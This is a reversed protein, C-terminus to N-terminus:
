GCRPLDALLQDIAPEVQEPKIESFPPLLHDQLLPNSMYVGSGPYLFASKVLHPLAPSNEIVGSRKNYFDSRLMM